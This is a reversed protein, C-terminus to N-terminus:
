QGFKGRVVFGNPIIIGAPMPIGGLKGQKAQALSCIAQAIAQATQIAGNANLMAEVTAATPLFGCAIVADNTIDAATVPAGTFPNTACGAVLLTGFLPLMRIFTVRM